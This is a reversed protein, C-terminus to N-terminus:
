FLELASGLNIGANTANSASSMSVGRNHLAQLWGLAYPHKSVIDSETGLIANQKSLLAEDQKLVNGQQMNKYGQSTSTAANELNLRIRSNSERLAQLFSIADRSSAVSPGIEPVVDATAGQGMAGSGSSGSPSSAGSNVSLLPNLGAAKLDAVERQHATGSMREQFDMQQKAQAASFDMSKQAQQNQFDMQVRAASAADINQQKASEYAAWGAAAGGLGPVQATAGAVIQSLGGFFGM